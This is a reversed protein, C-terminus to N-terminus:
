ITPCIYWYRHIGTKEYIQPMNTNTKSFVMKTSCSDPVIYIFIYRYRVGYSYIRGVRTELLWPGFPIVINISKGPQGAPAQGARAFSPPFHRGPSPPSHRDGRHRYSLPGRTRRCARRCYDRHSRGTSGGRRAAHRQYRGALNLNGTILSGSERCRPGRVVDDGSLIIGGSVAQSRPVLGPRALVTAPLLLPLLLLLLCRM